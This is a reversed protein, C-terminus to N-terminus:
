CTKFHVCPVAYKLVIYIYYQEYCPLRSWQTLLTLLGAAFPHINQLDNLAKARASDSLPFFGVAIFFRYKNWGHIWEHLTEPQMEWFCLSEAIAARMLMEGDIVAAPASSNFTFGPFCLHSTSLGPLFYYTRVPIGVAAKVTVLSCHSKEAVQVTSKRKTIAKSLM